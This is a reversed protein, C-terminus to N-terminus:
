ENKDGEDKEDFVSVLVIIIYPIVVIGALRITDLFYGILIDLAFATILGVIFLLTKTSTSKTRNM